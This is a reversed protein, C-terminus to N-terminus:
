ASRVCRLCCCRPPTAPARHGSPVSTARLSTFAATSPDSGGTGARFSLELLQHPNELGRTAVMISQPLSCSPRRKTAMSSNGHSDSTWRTAAPGTSKSVALAMFRAPPWARSRPASPRVPVYPHTARSRAPQDLPSTFTMLKGSAGGTVSLTGAIRGVNRGFLSLALRSILTRVCVAQRGDEIVHQGALGRELGSRRLGHEVHV